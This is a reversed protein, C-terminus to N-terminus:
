AKDKRNGIKNNVIAYFSDHCFSVIVCDSARLCFRFSTTSAIITLRSGAATTTRTYSRGCRVTNRQYASLKDQQALAAYRKVDVSSRM